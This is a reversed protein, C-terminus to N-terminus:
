DEKYKKNHPHRKEAEEKPSHEMYGPVITEKNCKITELECDVPIVTSQINPRFVTSPLRPLLGSFSRIINSCSSIKTLFGYYSTIYPKFADVIKWFGMTLFLYWYKM